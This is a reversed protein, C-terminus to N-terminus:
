PCDAVDRPKGPGLVGAALRQAPGAGHMDVPLGHAGAHNGNGRGLALGDRRDLPQGFVAAVRDLDGPAFEIDRLAAVALRSLDHAGGGQELAHRIRAIVVDVGRHAAVDAAAAGIGADAFRDM